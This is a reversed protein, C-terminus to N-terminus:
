GRVGKSLDIAVLGFPNKSVAAKLHTLTAAPVINSLELAEFTARDSAVAVFPIDTMHGTGPDITQTAVTLSITQIRGARDAEFVEHLTRVAVQAVADAYRERQEKQSQATETIEDRAKIYKYQRISPMASPAPVAAKLTLEGQAADFSFEHEVPFSDPYVSNGLVISVYEQVADEVGYGLNAILEDLARNSEAVEAERQRCEAEYIAKASELQQLRLNEAAEYSRDQEEQRSPISAVETEWARIAEHHDAQAQALLATYRKKAGLALSFKKPEGPPAVFDPRLPPKIPDPRPNAAALQGPEFPPHEVVRRLTELDVYDDVELTDALISDIERCTASLAANRASVAAEMAEIHLCKAEQEAKKQEAARAREAQVRAREAQRAAQEARRQAAAQDRAAHRQEQERRRADQQMQRNIEALLGRHKAM